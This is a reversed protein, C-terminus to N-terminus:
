WSTPCLEMNVHLKHTEYAICICLVLVFVHCVRGEKVIMTQKKKDGINAFGRPVAAMNNKDPLTQEPYVNALYWSFPQCHLRRRLAVRDSIDGYSLNRAAPRM